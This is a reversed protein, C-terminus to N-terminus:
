EAPQAPEEPRKQFLKKVLAAGLVALAIVILDYVAISAIVVALVLGGQALAGSALGSAAALIQGGAFASLAAASGWGFWRVFTRCLLGALVLLALGLAVVPFLEALMLYDFLLTGSAISGAVATALMFLIPAWLLITGSLAFLKALASRQKPNM